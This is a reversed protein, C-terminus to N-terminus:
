DDSYPGSRANDGTFTRTSFEYFPERRRNAQFDPDAHTVMSLLSVELTRVGSPVRRVPTPTPTPTPPIPPPTLSAVPAQGTAVQGTAAFGSM